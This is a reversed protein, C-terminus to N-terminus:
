FIRGSWTCAVLCSWLLGIGRRWTEFLVLYRGFWLVLGVMAVVLHGRRLLVFLAGNHLEISVVVSVLWGVRAPVCM